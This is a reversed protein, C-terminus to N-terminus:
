NNSMFGQIYIFFVFHVVNHGVEHGSVPSVSASCYQVPVTVTIERPGSQRFDQESAILRHPTRRTSSSRPSLASPLSISRQVVHPQFPNARADLNPPSSGDSGFDM